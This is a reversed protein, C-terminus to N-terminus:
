GHDPDTIRGGSSVALLPLHRARVGPLARERGGHLVARVRGDGRLALGEIQSWPVRRTRIRRIAVADTGVTTRTRLVWLLLLAPVLYILQLGPAAFALPTASVVLLLVALLSVRPLRFVAPTGASPPDSVFRITAGDALTPAGVAGLM